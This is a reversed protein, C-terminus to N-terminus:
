SKTFFGSQELMIRNAQGSLGRVDTEHRATDLDAIITQYEDEPCRLAQGTLVAYHELLQRDTYVRLVTDPDAPNHNSLCDPVVDAWRFKDGSQWCLDLGEDGSPPEAIPGNSSPM